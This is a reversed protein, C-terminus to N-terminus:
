IYRCGHYSGAKGFAHNNCCVENREAQHVTQFTEPPRVKITTMLDVSHMIKLFNCTGRLKTLLTSLRADVIATSKKLHMLIASIRMARLITLCIVKTIKSKKILKIIEIVEIMEIMEIMKIMRALKSLETLETSETSETSDISKIIFKISTLPSRVSSGYGEESVQVYAHSAAHATIAM